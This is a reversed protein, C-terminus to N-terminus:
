RRLDPAGQQPEAVPAAALEPREGGTGKAPPPLAPEAVPDALSELERLEQEATDLERNVSQEISRASEEFEQKVKKLEDLEMERQIDAKVDKVYREMRGFLHVLSRAVRPLREPGIVILAVVAIVLMESFGIDFM